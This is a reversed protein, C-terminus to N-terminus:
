SFLRDDAVDRIDALTPSSASRFCLRCVTSSLGRSPCTRSRIRQEVLIRRCRHNPLHRQPPRTTETYAHLAFLTKAYAALIEDVLPTVSLTRTFSVGLAKIISIRGFGAIPPPLTLERRSRPAVFVIDASKGRNLSLKNNNAWQELITIESTCSTLNSAPVILYTDDAFKAM